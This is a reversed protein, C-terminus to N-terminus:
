RAGQRCRARSWQCRGQGKRLAREGAPHRWAADDGGSDGAGGTEPEGVCAVGAAAQDHGRHERQNGGGRDQM